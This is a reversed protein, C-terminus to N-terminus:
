QRLMRRGAALERKKEPTMKPFALDLQDLADIVAASIVWRAFWKKNSPVVIWPAHPTATHRIADEYAMQYDKWHQQERVDGLSFKWYKEPEDLRKEFRRTQEKKSIHLFFKRIV